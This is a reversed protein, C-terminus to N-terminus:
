VVTIFYAAGESILFGADIEMAFIRDLGLGMVTLKRVEVGDYFFGQTM